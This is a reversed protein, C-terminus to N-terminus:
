SEQIAQILGDTIRNDKSSTYKFGPRSSRLQYRNENKLRIYNFKRKARQIEYGINM